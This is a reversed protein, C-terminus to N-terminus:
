CQMSSLFFSDSVFVLTKTISFSMGVRFFYFSTDNLKGPRLESYLHYPLTQLLVFLTNKPQGGYEM